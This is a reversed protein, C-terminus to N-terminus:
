FRATPAPSPPSTARRSPQDLQEPIGINDILTDIEDAPIVHASRASSPPSAPKPKKSARAPPLRARAAADPRFRRQPLFRRRGALGPGALAIRFRWSAALVRAAIACRGTSCGSTASACARSCGRQLLHHVRWFLGKGGAAEGDRGAPVLGSGVRLLYAVMTPVLTRSLLYSALMAFVVAMALPTFLYRATGTLLLVPVFVICISLTAVFTPVAIQSAGDLVARVLPKRM